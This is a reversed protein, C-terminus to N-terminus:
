SAALVTVRREQDLAVINHAGKGWAVAVAPLASKVPETWAKSAKSYQQVTLGGPGGTLLFQGTYDWSISDVRSSGTELSKIETMKRLDWISVTSSGETVAALWIGNESFFLAKVPSNLDFTAAQAGTKVDFLKIQGDQAGAALIHGDPHFQVCTLALCCTLLIMYLLTPFMGSNSYVQTAVASTTLDYLVYSKDVGVSAVIDGSPHLAVATVEGAHAGFSALEEQGEFVKVRGASTCVVPKSGSWVGGTISGGGGKLGNLVRNELLSYIGAIGDSTEVLALDGSSNVSLIRGGSHLPESTKQPKFTSIEEDKAWDEPVPRKRRTKEM